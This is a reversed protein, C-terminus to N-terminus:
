PMDPWVRNGKRLNELAPVLELNSECHLGCVLPSVLPVIHDVHWGKGLYNLADYFSQIEDRDAWIPTASLKAARRRVSKARAYGKNKLAYDRFYKRLNERNAERYAEQQIAVKAVNAERYAKSAARNKEVNRDYAEKNISRICVKCTSNVGLPRDKRKSFETLPKRVSCKLCTHQGDSTDARAALHLVRPNNAAAM